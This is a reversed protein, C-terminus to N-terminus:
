TTFSMAAPTPLISSASCLSSRTCTVNGAPFPHSHRRHDRGAVFMPYQPYQLLGPFFPCCRTAKREAFPSLAPTGNTRRQPSAPRNRCRWRNCCSLRGDAQVPKPTFPPLPPALHKGIQDLIRASVAEDGFAGVRVAIRTVPGDAPLPSAGTTICIKVTTGDTTRTELAAKGAGLEQSLLPLQSEAMAARVAAESRPFDAPYDRYLQGKTWAYGAYAGGAAAAGAGLIVGALCGTNTLLLLGIFVTGIQKTRKQSLGAM